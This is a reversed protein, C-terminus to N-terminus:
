SMEMIDRSLYFYICDICREVIYPGVNYEDFFQHSEWCVPSDSFTWTECYTGCGKPNVSKIHFRLTDCLQEAEEYNYRKKFQSYVVRDEKGACSNLMIYLLEAVPFVGRVVAVIKIAEEIDFNSFAEEISRVTSLCEPSLVAKLGERGTVIWNKLEGIGDEGLYSVIKALLGAPMHLKGSSVENKIGVISIQNKSCTQDALRQPNPQSRHRIYHHLKNPPLPRHM